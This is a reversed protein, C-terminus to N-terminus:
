GVSRLWGSYGPDSQRPLWSALDRVRRALAFLREPECRLRLQPFEYREEFEIHALVIQRLESLVPLFDLDDPDTRVLRDLARRIAYEQDLLQDVIQPGAEGVGRTIPHVVREEAAEHELLLTALETLRAARRSGSSREVVGLLDRIRLHQDVLLSVLDPGRGEYGEGM